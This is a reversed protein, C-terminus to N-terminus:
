QRAFRAIWADTWEGKNAPPQAQVAMRKATPGQIPPRLSQPALSPTTAVMQASAPPAFTPGAAMLFEFFADQVNDWNVYQGKNAYSPLQVVIGLDSMALAVLTRLTDDRSTTPMPTGDQLAALVNEERHVLTQSKESSILDRLHKAHVVLANALYTLSRRLADWVKPRARHFVHAFYYTFQLWGALFREPATTPEDASKGDILEVAQVVRKRFATFLRSDKADSWSLMGQYMDQLLKSRLAFSEYYKEYLTTISHKADRRVSVIMKMEELDSGSPNTKTVSPLERAVLDSGSGSSIALAFDNLTKVDEEFQTKRFQVKTPAYMLKMRLKTMAGSNHAFSMHNALWENDTFPTMWQALEGFKVLDDYKGEFRDAMTKYFERLWTLMRAHNAFALLRAVRENNPENAHRFYAAPKTRAWVSLKWKKDAWDDVDDTRFIFALDDLFNVVAKIESSPDVEDAGVFAPTDGPLLDQLVPFWLRVFAIQNQRSVDKRRLVDQATQLENRVLVLEADQKADSKPKSTFAELGEKVIVGLREVLYTELVQGQVQREAYTRKELDAQALKGDELLEIASRIAHVLPALQAGAGTGSKRRTHFFGPTSAAPDTLRARLQAFNRLKEERLTEAWIRAYDARMEAGKPTDVGVFPESLSRFSWSSPTTNTGIADYITKYEKHIDPQEDERQISQPFISRPMEFKSTDISSSLPSFSSTFSAPSFSPVPLPTAVNTAPASSLISSFDVADQKAATQPGEGLVPGFDVHAVNPKGSGALTDLFANTLRHTQEFEGKQITHAEVGEVLMMERVNEPTDDVFFGVCGPHNQMWNRAWNAKWQAWYKVTESGDKVHALYEVESPAVVLVQNADGRAAGTWARFPFSILNQEQMTTLYKLIHTDISRTLIVATHGAALISGFTANMLAFEQGSVKNELKQVHGSGQTHEQILTQDFDFMLVACGSAASSRSGLDFLRHLIRDTSYNLTTEPENSTKKPDRMWATHLALQSVWPRLERLKIFQDTSCKGDREFGPNNEKLWQVIRAHNAFALIAPAGIVATTQVGGVLFYRIPKWDMSGKYFQACRTLVDDDAFVNLTAMHDQVTRIANAKDNTTSALQPYMSFPLYDYLVPIWLRAFALLDSSPPQSRFLKRVFQVEKRLRMEEAGQSVATKKEDPLLEVLQRHQYRLLVERQESQIDSPQSFLAVEASKGDALMEGALFLATKFEVLKPDAAKMQTHIPGPSKADPDTLIPVLDKWNPEHTFAEAWMRAYEALLNKEFRDDVTTGFQESLFRGHVVPNGNKVTNYLIKHSSQWTQQKKAASTPAPAPAPAPASAKQDTSSNQWASPAVDKKKQENALLSRVPAADRIGQAIRKAVGDIRFPAADISHSQTLLNQSAMADAFALILLSNRGDWESSEPTVYKFFVENFLVPEREARKKEDLADAVSTPLIPKFPEPRPLAYYYYRMAMFIAQYNTVFANPTEVTAFLLLRVVYRIWTDVYSTRYSQAQARLADTDPTLLGFSKALQVVTRALRAKWERRLSSDQVNPGLFPFDNMLAKFLRYLTQFQEYKVSYAATDALNTDFFDDWTIPTVNHFKLSDNDDRKTPKNQALHATTFSLRTDQIVKMNADRNSRLQNLKSVITNASASAPWLAGIALKLPGNLGSVTNAFQSYHTAVHRLTSINAGYVYLDARLQKLLHRLLHYHALVAFDEENSLEAWVHLQDYDTQVVDIAYEAAHLADNESFVRGVHSILLRILRWIYDTIPKPVQAENPEPLLFAIDNLWDTLARFFSSQRKFTNKPDLVEKLFLLERRVIEIEAINSTPLKNFDDIRESLFAAAARAEETDRQMVSFYKAMRKAYARIGILANLEEPPAFSSWNAPPRMTELSHSKIENSPVLRKLLEEKAVTWQKEEVKTSKALIWLRGYSDRLPHRKTPFFQPSTFQALLAKQSMLLATYANRYKEELTVVKQQPELKPVPAPAAPADKAEESVPARKSASLLAEKEQLSKELEAVKQKTAECATLEAQAAEFVRKQEALHEGRMEMLEDMTYQRRGPPPPKSWLAQSVTAKRLAELVSTQM